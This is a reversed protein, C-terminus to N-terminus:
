FQVVLSLNHHSYLILYKYSSFFMCRQTSIDNFGQSIFLYQVQRHVEEMENLFKTHTKVTQWSVVMLVNLVMYYRTLLAIGYCLTRLVCAFHNFLPKLMLKLSQLKIIIFFFFINRCNLKVFPVGIFIFFWNHTRLWYLISM